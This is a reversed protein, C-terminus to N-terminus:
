DCLTATIPNPDDTIARNIGAIARTIRRHAKRIANRAAARDGDRQALTITERLDGFKRYYRASSYSIYRHRALIYLLDSIQRRTPNPFLNWHRGAAAAAHTMARELADAAPLYDRAQINSDAQALFLDAQTQHHTATSM